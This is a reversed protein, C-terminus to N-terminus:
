PCKGKTKEVVKKFYWKNYKDAYGPSKSDGFGSTGYEHHKQYEGYDGKVGKFAKGAPNEVGTFRSKPSKGCSKGEAILDSEIELESATRSEFYMALKQNTSYM